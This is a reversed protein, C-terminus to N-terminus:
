YEGRARRKAARVRVTLALNDPEHHLMQRVTLRRGLTRKLRGVSHFRDVNCPEGCRALLMDLLWDHQLSRAGSIQTSIM